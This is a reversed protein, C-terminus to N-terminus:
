KKTSGAPPAKHLLQSTQVNRLDESSRYTIPDGTDRGHIVNSIISDALTQEIIITHRAGGRINNLFLRKIGGIGRCGIRVTAFRTGKDFVGDLKVDYIHGKHNTLFRVVSHNTRGEVNRICINRIDDDDGRWEYGSVQTWSVGGAERESNERPVNTLALLDDGTSGSLGDITINHCGVRLNLGDQNLLTEYKGDILKRGSSRFRIDRIHGRSSRELSIAWAHSDKIKLNEIRFNEVFAFLIGVNRWDGTQSEGPVGADTGYTQKGLTKNGDGSARPREAGELLVDGVGYIYVDQMPQIETIGLGSNASRIMNDRSRDSLKIHCNNLELTSGNQMLIASDLLWLNKDGENTQNRRPIVVRRGTGAAAEIAQNIRETDSGSFQNPTIYIDTQTDSYSTDTESGDAVHSNQALTNGAPILLWILATLIIGNTKM